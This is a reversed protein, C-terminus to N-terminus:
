ANAPAATMGTRVQDALRRCTDYDGPACSREGYWKIEFLGTLGRFPRQVETKERLQRVYEGNTRTPSYRILDARHLVALVALYLTRVADLFKGGRALEDAQRWLGEGGLKDAESLLAELSLADPKAKAAAPPKRLPRNRQYLVLAAVLTAVLVTAILMWVLPSFGESQAPGVTGSGQRARRPQREVPQEDPPPERKTQRPRTSPRAAKSSEDPAPPLLAKIEDKSRAVPPPPQSLSDEIVALRNDFEHLMRLADEKDQLAFRDAELGLWRYGDRHGGAERELRAALAKLRPKWANGNRYPDAASVERIIQGIEKRAARVGDLRPDAAAAASPILAAGLALVLLMALRRDVVPFLRRVRYWLDLGEFRARADIHFLYNTAEGFPLMLLIVLFLLSARYIPNNWALVVDLLAIDLGALNEAVWLLVKVSMFLNVGAFLLLFPRCVSLALAKGMQRQAQRVATWWAAAWHQEGDAIIPHVLLGGVCPEVLSYITLSLFFGAIERLPSPLRFIMLWLPFMVMAVLVGGVIMLMWVLSRAAVHDLGHRCAAALCAHITPPKGEARRRFVEQCAGSALGTLPLLTALVAPLLLSQWSGEAPLYTLLLLQVAAVPVFFLGSLALLLPADALMLRVAEDLIEGTTRPRIETPLGSRGPAAASGQRDVPAPLQKIM